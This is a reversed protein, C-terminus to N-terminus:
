LPHGRASLPLTIREGSLGAQFVAMALELAEMGARASCLPERGTQIANLWADVIRRNAQRFGRENEPINRSPDDPLPRWEIARGDNTWDGAKALFIKPSIETLIRVRGKTGILEMGWPGATARYKNRSVFTAQVGKEFAFLAHIEDGLVKGIGETAQRADQKTAERGKELVRATCWRPQGAFLRILDFLHTGLVIMDEGGARHDQKGHARIELLEGILGDDLKKKLHQIAPTLKIQHAVVIKLGRKEATAILEDAEALTHTIPKELYVHAGSNLAAMAMAHHELTWRPAVSVLHPKEQELMERYDAYSRKAHSRAVAKARGGADPDAVAVVETNPLDNFILDHEHGYDGKGSHGIIAARWTKPAPAPQAHLGFVAASAAGFFTGKFFNRRPIPQYMTIPTKAM